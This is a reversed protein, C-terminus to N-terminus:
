SEAETIRVWMNKHFYLFYVSEDWPKSPNVLQFDFARLLEFYVKNFEWAAITKGACTWRGGGFLIDLAREMEARRADSCELFREPRFVDVDEGFVATNHTLGIANQGIITGGPLFTGDLYDGEPPVRKFHGYTLPNKIRLGELIVAQLYPLKQAEQFTIPSSVENREVCEKIMKKLRFYVRPTAMIYMMTARIAGATTDVGALIQLMGEDNCERKTMGHRIFSGLMDDAQKETGFREEILNHIVGMIKGVGKEDTPEPGFLDFLFPSFMIRKLLGVEQSLSMFKLTKDLRSAYEYLDGDAADLFGFAKGYGIRTVMDLTFCRVLGAFEVNHLQSETAIHRSRITEVFNVIISDIANEFDPNERNSYGGATKAKMVDHKSTDLLTIMNVHHPSFAVSTYWEDKTYKNRVSAVQRLVNPDNTLVANPGVRALGGHRNLNRLDDVLTDFLIGKALWLYSFSAFFPGSIHRLRYWAAVASVTYWVVLLGALGALVGPLSLSRIYDVPLLM